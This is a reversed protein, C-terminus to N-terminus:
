NAAGMNREVSHCRFCDTAPFAVAGHCRGCYEGALIDEMNIRNAGAKEVFPDDHCSSCDLWETHALHPFRVMPMAATRPMIIESKLMEPDAGPKLRDKPSIEGQRLAAVWDVNNGVEDRKGPLKSLIRAPERLKGVAPNNKDHLGDNVLRRWFRGDKAHILDRKPKPLRPPAFPVDEGTVDGRRTAQAKLDAAGWGSLIACLMAALVVCHIVLWLM